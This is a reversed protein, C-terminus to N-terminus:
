RHFPCDRASSLLCILGHARTASCSRSASFNAHSNLPSTSSSKCKKEKTLYESWCQHRNSTEDSAVLRGSLACLIHFFTVTSSRHAFAGGSHVVSVRKTAGKPSESHNRYVPCRTARVNKETKDHRARRLVNSGCVRM